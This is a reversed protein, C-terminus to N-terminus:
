RAFVKKLHDLVDRPIVAMGYGPVDPLYAFDHGQRLDRIARKRAAEHEKTQENLAAAKRGTLDGPHLQRTGARQTTPTTM